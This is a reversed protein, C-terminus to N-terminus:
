NKIQILNISNIDINKNIEWDRLIDKIEYSNKLYAINKYVKENIDKKLIAIIDIFEKNIYSM